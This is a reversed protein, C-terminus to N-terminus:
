VYRNVLNELMEQRGSVPKPAFEGDTAVDALGALSQHGERISTGLAGDWASYRDAVFASLKGDAIMKEAALLSRALVDMGGIHAHFLDTPDVSQRRIKADFNFGGQSLGGAQMIHYLALTLEPVNNPFQDTDWGNQDDGRNIDVSGLIGFAAATAIEHEFTHGALTAHNVEVNVKVEDELGHANLFGYVTAVDHDYQHKTPECPKPEILITGDFGIKHKHEVVMSIFRGLQDLERKMDTNLLTEYGERGGWLVYNQGGLRQTVELINRVQGAAYAFVEPDPNTAAGAMYRPHSFLNATGWLLRTGTREIEGAMQDAIWDLNSAATKLDEGLPVADVDHFCFYPQGLKEFFEFAVKLKSAAHDRDDAQQWPRGFTGAGFMDVGPWAFSHWYCVAVRLQEAMTKGLVVRDPDYFRFALPSDTDPGEFKIKEVDPFFPQSM